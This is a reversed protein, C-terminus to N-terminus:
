TSKVVWEANCTTCLKGDEDKLLTIVNLHGSQNTKLWEVMENSITCEATIKGRAKKHFEASLKTVIAQRQMKQTHSLLALGSTLEGMNMLALAHISNFPNHLRRREQIEIQCKGLEYQIVKPSVSGVIFAFLFGCRHTQQFGCKGERSQFTM